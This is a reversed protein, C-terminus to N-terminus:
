PSSRAEFIKIKAHTKEELTFLNYSFAQLIKFKKVNLMSEIGFLIQSFCETQFENRPAM